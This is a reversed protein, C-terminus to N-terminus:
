LVGMSLIDRHFRFRRQPPTLSKSTFFNRCWFSKLCFGPLCDARNSKTDFKHRFQMNNTEFSFMSKGLAAYIMYIPIFESRRM